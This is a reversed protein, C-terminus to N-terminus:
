GAAVLATFEAGCPGKRMFRCFGCEPAATEAFVTWSHDSSSLLKLEVIEQSHGYGQPLEGRWETSGDTLSVSSPLAEEGRDVQLLGTAELRQWLGEVQEWPTISSEAEEADDAANDSTAKDKSPMQPERLSIPVVPYGMGGAPVDSSPWLARDLAVLLSQSSSDRAYALVRLPLREIEETICPNLLVRESLVRPHAPPFRQLVQESSDALLHMHLCARAAPQQDKTPAEQSPEAAPEHPASMSLVPKEAVVTAWAASAGAVATAFPCRPLRWMYMYIDLRSVVAIVLCLIQGM